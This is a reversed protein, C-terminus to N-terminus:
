VEKLPDSPPDFPSIGTVALQSPGRSWIARHSDTSEQRPLLRNQRRQEARESGAAPLELVSGAERRGSRVRPRWLKECTSHSKRPQDRFVPASRPRQLRCRGRGKAKEKKGPKPIKSGSGPSRRPHSPPLGRRQRGDGPFTDWLADRPGAAPAGQDVAGRPALKSACGTGAGVESFAGRPGVSDGCLEPALLAGSCRTRGGAPEGPSRSVAHHGGASWAAHSRRVQASGRRGPPSGALSRTRGPEMSLASALAAGQTRACGGDLSCVPTGLSAGRQPM